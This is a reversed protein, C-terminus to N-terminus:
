DDRTQDGSRNREDTEAKVACNFHSGTRSKQPSEAVVDICSFTFLELPRSQADDSPTEQRQSRVYGVFSAGRQDPV